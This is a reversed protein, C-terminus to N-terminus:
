LFGYKHLLDFKTGDLSFHIHTFLSAHIILSFRQHYSGHFCTLKFHLVNLSRDDIFEQFLLWLFFFHEKLGGRGWWLDGAAVLSGLPGGSYDIPIETM